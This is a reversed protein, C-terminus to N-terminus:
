DLKKTGTLASEKEDMLKGYGQQTHLCQFYFALLSKVPM